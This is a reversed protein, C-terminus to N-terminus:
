NAGQCASLAQSWPQNPYQAMCDWFGPSSYSLTAELCYRQIDPYRAACDPNSSCAFMCQAMLEPDSQDLPRVVQGLASGAMFASSILFLLILIVRIM